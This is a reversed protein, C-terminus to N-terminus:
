TEKTHGKLNCVECLLNYNKKFKYNQNGGGNKTFMAAEYNELMVAPNAGLIGTVNKISMKSEYSIVMYYAENVSPIPSMLLIQSRAQAYSDNLGILYQFLKLKYTTGQSLTAIEKHVNFTQSGDIKNFREHLEEWVAQANTAYMIGRLLGKAISSMIWSLVIVNVKNGIIGWLKMFIRRKVLTM